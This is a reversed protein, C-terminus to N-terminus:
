ILTKVNRAQNAKIIERNNKPGEIKSDAQIDKRKFGSHIKELICVQECYQKSVAKPSEM